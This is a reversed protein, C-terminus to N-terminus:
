RAYVVELIVIDALVDAGYAGAPYEAIAGATNKFVKLKLTTLDAFKLPTDANPAVIVYDGGAGLLSAALTSRALVDVDVVGLQSAPSVTTPAAPTGGANTLDLTDGGTPYNGSFQVLLFERLFRDGAASEHNIPIFPTGDYGVLKIAMIEGKNIAPLLSPFDEGEIDM